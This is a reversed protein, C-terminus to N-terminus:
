RPHVRRGMWGDDIGNIPMSVSKGAKGVKYRTEDFDSDIKGLKVLNKKQLLM